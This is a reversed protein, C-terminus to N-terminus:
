RGLESRASYAQERSLIKVNTVQARKRVAPPLCRSSQVQRTAEGQHIDHHLIRAPAAIGLLAHYLLVSPRRHVRHEPHIISLSRPWLIESAMVMLYHLTGRVAVHQIGALGNVLGGAVSNQFGGGGVRLNRDLVELIQGGCVKAIQVFWRAILDQRGRRAASVNM